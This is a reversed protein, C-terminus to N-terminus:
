FSGFGTIASVEPLLASGKPSRFQHIRCVFPQLVGSGDLLALKM